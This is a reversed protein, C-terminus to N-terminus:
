QTPQVLCEFAANADTEWRMNQGDWRIRKRAIRLECKNWVVAQIWTSDVHEVVAIGRGLIAVRDGRKLNRDRQRRDYYGKSM